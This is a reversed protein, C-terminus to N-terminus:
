TVLSVSLEFSYFLVSPEVVVFAALITSVCVSNMLCIYSINDCRIVTGLSLRLVDFLWIRACPIM